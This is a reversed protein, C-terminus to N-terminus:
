PGNGELCDELSACASALEAILPHADEIVAWQADSYADRIAQMANAVAASAEVVHALHILSSALNMPPPTTAGGIYGMAHCPAIGALRACPFAGPQGPRAPM